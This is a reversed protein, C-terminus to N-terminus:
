RGMKNTRDNCQEYIIVHNSHSAVAICILGFVASVTDLNSIEALRKARLKRQREYHLYARPIVDKKEM